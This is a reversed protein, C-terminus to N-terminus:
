SYVVFSCKTGYMSKALEIVGGHESHSISSLESTFKFNYFRDMFLSRFKLSLIENKFYFNIFFRIKRDDRAHGHMIKDTDIAVELFGNNPKNRDNERYIYNITNTGDTLPTTSLEDRIAQIVDKQIEYTNM